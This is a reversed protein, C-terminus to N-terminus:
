NYIIDSVGFVIKPGILNDWSFSSEWLIPPLVDQGGFREHMTIAIEHM